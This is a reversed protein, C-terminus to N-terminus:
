CPLDEVNFVIGICYVEGDEMVKFKAHPITTKYIWSAYVKGDDDEPCWLAKIQAQAGISKLYHECDECERCHDPASIIGERNLNVEGGGYCDAEDYIAGRFEMLDDSAGFVVVLGSDALVINDFRSDEKGIEVGDIAQAVQIGKIDM